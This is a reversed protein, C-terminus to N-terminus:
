SRTPVVVSKITAPNATSELAERVEDLGFTGTVMRDLDVQGGAVLSIATPWTNAYRFVGTVVLEKNQIATVPLPVEPLGMGVLVARGAPRLARIGARVASAAGSADAFSDVGAVADDFASDSPDVVSTAGFTLAAARRDEAIDSVIVEAAGYARAVQAIAIGVPGAGTVLVRDGPSFRAKRATAIAVSLPEMLAAAHDSVGDPIAHAFHDQITVYEQFAGDTGPVAFFQMHPDLNYDGRLTEPSTTSPHQPEISVRTGVRAPDVDEGVAVITGGSEHGLVLPETVVWDGLHGDKYFHVDSGCVGVATVRVLVEDARPVPVPRKQLAIEGARLLVAAKMRGPERADTPTSM